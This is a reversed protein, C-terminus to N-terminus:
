KYLTHRCTRSLVSLESVMIESRLHGRIAESTVSGLVGVGMCEVCEWVGVSGCGYVGVGKSREVGVGRCEWVWYMVCVSECGICEWKRYVGM